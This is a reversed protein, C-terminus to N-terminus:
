RKVKELSKKTAKILKDVSSKTKGELVVILFNDKLEVGTFLDEGVKQLNRLASITAQLHKQNFSEFAKRSGLTDPYEILLLKLVESDFKYSTLLANTKESLNLINEKSLFYLNNLVINKHFYFISQKQLNEQPIRDLLRPNEGKNKIKDSISKGLNFILDKRTDKGEMDIIRVFYRDKWFFLIGFGYSAEQGIILSEGEQNLSFLGFADESSNMQYIEVLISEDGSLYEQVLLKQFDYSLYIEAGGDLYDFLNDRTFFRSDKTKWESEFTPILKELQESGKDPNNAAGTVGSILFLSIFFAIVL